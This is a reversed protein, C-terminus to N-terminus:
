ILIKRDAHDTVAHCALAGQYLTKLLPAVIGDVYGLLM